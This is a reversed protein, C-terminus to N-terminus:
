TYIRYIYEVLYEYTKLVFLFFQGWMLYFFFAMFIFFIM